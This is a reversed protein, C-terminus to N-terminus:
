AAGELKEKLQQFRPILFEEFQAKTAAVASVLDAKAGSAPPEFTMRTHCDLTYRAGTAIAQAQYTVLVQFEGPVSLYDATVSLRRAEEDRETFRVVREDIVACDKELKMRYGGLPATLDDDALPEIAYGADRWTTTEVYTELINAWVKDPSVDIDVHVHNVVTVPIM